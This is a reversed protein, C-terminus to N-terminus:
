ENLNRSAAAAIGPPPRRRHRCFCRRALPRLVPLWRSAARRALPSGTILRFHLETTSTIVLACLLGM